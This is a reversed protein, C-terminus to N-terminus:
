LGYKHIKAYLTQRTIQLERATHSINGLNNELALRILEREATELTPKQIRGIPKLKEKVIIDEPNILKSESLIVAREVAHKLERINGPWSYASMEDLTRSSFELGEKLYKNQYRQLFFLAFDAIDEPRERLPPIELQIANIRYFLDERFRGEQIMGPLNMNTACILRVDVPVSHDAGVATITKSQILTLLKAQLALPVNGIEDLFLTGGSAVQVRGMRDERADTFSGKKHGFLESEFVMEGVSGLDVAVFPEDQRASRLHIEQALVEKGTGSEGLVLVNIDTKAIKEIQRYLDQMEPSRSCFIDQKIGQSRNIQKQRVKLERLELASLRLRLASNLTALLKQNDWPKVVFDIAGLRIAKIALDISGYATLLVVSISSDHKLIEKLWYLGENGSDVGPSFNMDLLVVDFRNKRITEPILEPKKLSAVFEYRDSLLLSLSNLVSQNDDVLLIRGKKNM